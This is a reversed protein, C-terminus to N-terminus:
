ERFCPTRLKVPDASIIQPPAQTYCLVKSFFHTGPTDDAGSRHPSTDKKLPGLDWFTPSWWLGLDRAGQRQGARRNLKMIWIRSTKRVGKGWPLRLERHKKTGLRQWTGSASLCDDVYKKSETIFPDMARFQGGIMQGPVGISRKRQSGLKGKWTLWVKSVGGKRSPFGQNM